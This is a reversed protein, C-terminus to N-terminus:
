FQCNLPLVNFGAQTFHRDFSLVDTMKKDWMIVFSICDVLGWEKDQYQKYLEFGKKFLDPTMQILEVDPATLFDDIIESAEQKYGRSLANGIELLIPESIVLPYGDYVNVMKLAINHYNDRENILAIIYSTDVFIQSLSM